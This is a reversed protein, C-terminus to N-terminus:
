SKSRATLTFGIQVKRFVRDMAIWAQRGIYPLLAAKAEIQATMGIGGL